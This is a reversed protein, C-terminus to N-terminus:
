SRFFKARWGSRQKKTDEAPPAPRTVDNPVIAPNVGALEEITVDVVVTTINDRGGNHNAANVLEQAAQQPDEFEALIRAIDDNSVENTLGDSCLLFRM